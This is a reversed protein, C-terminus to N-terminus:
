QEAAHSSWSAFFSRSVLQTSGAASRPYRITQCMSLCRAITSPLHMVRRPVALRTHSLTLLRGLGLLAIYFPNQLRLFNRISSVSFLLCQRSQQCRPLCLLNSVCESAGRKKGSEPGISSTSKDTTTQRCNSFLFNFPCRLRPSVDSSM